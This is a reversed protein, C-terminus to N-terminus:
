QVLHHLNHKKIYKKRAEDILKAKRDMFSGVGFNNPETKTTQIHFSFLICVNIRQKEFPCYYRQKNVRKAIANENM